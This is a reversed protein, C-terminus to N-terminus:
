LMRRLVFQRLREQREAFDHPMKAPRVGARMRIAEMARLFARREFFSGKRVVIVHHGMARLTNEREADSVDRGAQDHHFGHYEIDLRAAVIYVDAILFRRTTMDRFRERVEIRHDMEVTKLGLGGVKRPLILMMVLATEMPSRSGDRVYGLARMARGVGRRGPMRAFFERLKRVSALPKREHYPGDDFPLAYAGCIEYYYEVLELFDMEEAAQLACLCIGVVYMGGNIKLLAGAPLEGQHVHCKLNSSSRRNGSSSTLTHITELEADPVGLAALKIKLDMSDARRVTGARFPARRPPVPEM